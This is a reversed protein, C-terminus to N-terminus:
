KCRRYLLFSSVIAVLGVTVGVYYPLYDKKKSGEEPLVWAIHRLGLVFENFNIKGDGDKDMLSFLYQAEETSVKRNFLRELLGKLQDLGIEESKTTDMSTFVDRFYELQENYSEIDNLNVKGPALHRLAHKFMEFRQDAIDKIREYLEPQSFM